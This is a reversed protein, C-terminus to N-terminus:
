RPLVPSLAAQSGPGSPRRQPGEGREKRNTVNARVAVNMGLYATLYSAIAGVAFAICSRCGTHCSYASYTNCSVVAFVAITQLQRNLYASAGERIAKAIEKMKPTGEPKKLVGLCM